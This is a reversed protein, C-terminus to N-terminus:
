EESLWIPKELVNLHYTLIAACLSASPTKLEAEWFWLRGKIRNTIRCPSDSSIFYNFGKPILSIVLQEFSNNDILTECHGSAAIYIWKDKVDDPEPNLTLWIEHFLVRWIVSGRDDSTLDSLRDILKKYKEIM